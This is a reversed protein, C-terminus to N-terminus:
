KRKGTTMMEVCSVDYGLCVSQGFLYIYIDDLKSEFLNEAPRTPSNVLINCPM